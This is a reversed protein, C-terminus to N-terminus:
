PRDVLLDQQEPHRAIYAKIFPCLPVVREGAARVTALAGAALASGVGQGEFEPSVETHTFTVVGDRRRYYAGGAETGDDLLALFVRRDPDDRVTVAPRPDTM